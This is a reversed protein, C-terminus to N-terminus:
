SGGLPVQPCDSAPDRWWRATRQIALTRREPVQLEYWSSLSLEGLLRQSHEHESRAGAFNGSGKRGAGIPIANLYHRVQEVGREM